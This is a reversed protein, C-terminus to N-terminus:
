DFRPFPSDYDFIGRKKDKNEDDMAKSLGKSAQERRLEEETETLQTTLRDIERRAKTLDNSNDLEIRKLISEQSPDYLVIMDSEVGALGTDPAHHYHIHDKHISHPYKRPRSLIIDSIGVGLPYYYIDMYNSEGSESKKISALTGFVCNNIDVLFANKKGYDM